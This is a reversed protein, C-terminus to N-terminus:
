GYSQRSATMITKKRWELAEKAKKAVAATTTMTAAAATAITATTITTAGVTASMDGKDRDRQMHTHTHPQCTGPVSQVNDVLEGCIKYTTKQGMSMFSKLLTDLLRM